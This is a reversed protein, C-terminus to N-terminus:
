GSNAWVGMVREAVEDISGRADVRQHAAEAYRTSRAELTESLTGAPDEGLLPRGEGDGVRETLVDVPADLWVVTGSARMAAVAEDDLVVGGGCAVVLEEGARAMVLEREATRFGAEDEAFWDSISRGSRAAVEDDTDLLSRGSRRAIARAVSSKGSGMMGVLWLTGV